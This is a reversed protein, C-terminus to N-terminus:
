YVTDQSSGSARTNIVETDSGSCSGNDEFPVVKKLTQCVESALNKQNCILVWRTAYFQIWSSLCRMQNRLVMSSIVALYYVNSSREPSSEGFRGLPRGSGLLWQGTWDIDMRTSWDQLCLFFWKPDKTEIASLDVAL